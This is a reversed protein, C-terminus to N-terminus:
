VVSRTFLRQYISEFAALPKEWGIHECAWIRAARAMALRQEPDSILWTIREVFDLDDEAISINQGDTLELGEISRSSAVVAKGAALAELIKVRMGGGSALPSVVVAARDLYPALDPVWGTVNIDQDALEKLEPPPQNGVINLKVGPLRDKATPFIQLALRLAAEINPSHLFSGFFLISWPPCGIPNLPANPILTGFPITDIPTQVALSKLSKRDNETFVVVSHVKGIM